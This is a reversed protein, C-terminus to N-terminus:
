LDNYSYGSSVKGLFVVPEKENIWSPAKSSWFTLTESVIDKDEIACEFVADDHVTWCLKAEGVLSKVMESVQWFFVDRAIGQVLNNVARGFWLNTEKGGELNAYLPQGWEGVGKYIPKYNIVRGSPLQIYSNKLLDNFVRQWLGGKRSYGGTIMKYKKIFNRRISLATEEDIEQGYMKFLSVIGKAGQGYMAALFATKGEKRSLNLSKGFDEYIDKGQEFMKLLKSEGAAWAICRPDISSSDVKVFINGEHPIIAKRGASGKKLGQINVGTTTSRGTEAAYYNMDIKLEGGKSANLVQRATLIDMKGGNVFASQCIGEDVHITHECVEEHWHIIDEEESPVGRFLAGQMEKFRKVMENEKM